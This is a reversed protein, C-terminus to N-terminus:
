ADNVKSAHRPSALLRLERVLNCCRKWGTRQTAENQIRAWRGIVRASLELVVVTRRRSGFRDGVRM